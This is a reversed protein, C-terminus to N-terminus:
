KQEGNNLISGDSPHERLYMEIVAAGDIAVEIGSVYPIDGGVNEEYLEIASEMESSSMKLVNVLYRRVIGLETERESESIPQCAQKEVLMRNSASVFWTVVWGDVELAQECPWVIKREIRSLEDESFDVM